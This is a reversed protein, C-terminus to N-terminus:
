ILGKVSTQNLEGPRMFFGVDQTVGTQLDKTACQVIDKPIKTQLHIGIICPSLKQKLLTLIEIGINM